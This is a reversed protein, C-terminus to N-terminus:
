STTGSDWHKNDDQFGEGASFGKDEAINEEKM